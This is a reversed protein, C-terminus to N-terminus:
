SKGVCDQLLTFIHNSWGGSGCLAGGEVRVYVHIQRGSSPHMKGHEDVKWECVYM